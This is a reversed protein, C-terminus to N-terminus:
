YSPYWKATAAFLAVPQFPYKFICDKSRTNGRHVKDIHCEKCLTVGNKIDHRLDLRDAFREIHHAHLRSGRVGCVQCTYDDREFVAKRWDAIEQTTRALKNAPTIGGKWNNHNPGTHTKDFKRANPVGHIKCHAAWTEQTWGKTPVPKRGGKYTACHRCKTNRRSPERYQVLRKIGCSPCSLEMKPMGARGTALRPM